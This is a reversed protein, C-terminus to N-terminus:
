LAYLALTHRCTFPAPPDSVVNLTQPPVAPESLLKTHGPGIQSRWGRQRRVLGRFQLRGRACCLGRRFQQGLGPGRPQGQQGPRRQGAERQRSRRKGSGREGPRRSRWSRRGPRRQRWQQQQHHQSGDRCLANPDALQQSAPGARGGTGGVTRSGIGEAWRSKGQTGGVLTQRLRTLAPKLVAPCPLNAEGAAVRCGRGLRCITCGVLAPGATVGRGGWGVETQSVNDWLM